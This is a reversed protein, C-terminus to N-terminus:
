GASTRALVADLTRLRHARAADEIERAGAGTEILQLLQEHEEVSGPARGPVVSFSSDRLGRIRNWDRTVLGLLLPNDCGAFIAAHFESNLETFRLPDFDDLLRRMRENIARAEALQAASLNPASLATVAGELVALTQMTHLYEQPDLQAVQSGINRQSTVLSEAELRRIAERVPVVSMGLEAAITGLVLRYGPVYTGRQIRDRIWEYAVQSKSPSDAIPGTV